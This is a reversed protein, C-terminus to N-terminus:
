ENQNTRCGQRSGASPSYWEFPYSINLSILSLARFLDLKIQVGLVPPKGVSLLQKQTRRYRVESDKEAVLNFPSERRSELRSSLLWCLINHSTCRVTNECRDIVSGFAGMICSIKQEDERPSIFNPADDLAGLGLIYDTTLSHRNPLKTMAQLVDRRSGRYVSSWQTRDLWLSTSAFTERCADNGTMRPQVLADQYGAEWEM